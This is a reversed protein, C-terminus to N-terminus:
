KKKKKKKIEVFFSLLYMTFEICKSNETYGDVTGDFARTFGLKWITNSLGM